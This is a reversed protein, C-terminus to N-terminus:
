AVPQREAPLLRELMADRWGCLFLQTVVQLGRLFEAVEEVKEITVEAAGHALGNRLRHGTDLWAGRLDPLPHNPDDWLADFCAWMQNKSGEAARAIEVGPVRRYSASCVVEIANWFSMFQDFPDPSNLGKRYWGLSRSVEPHSLRLRNADAFAAEIEYQEVIRRNDARRSLRQEDGLGRLVLSENVTLALADLMRGVFVFAAKFAPERSGARAEVTAAIGSSHPKFRINSYFPDAPEFGKQERRAFSRSVVVPGQVLLDIEWIAM